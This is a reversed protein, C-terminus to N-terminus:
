VDGELKALLADIRGLAASVHLDLGRIQSPETGYELDSRLAKLAEVLEEITDAAELHRDGTGHSRRLREV